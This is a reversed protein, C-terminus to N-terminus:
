EPISAGSEAWEIIAESDGARYLLEEDGYEVRAEYLTDGTRAVRIPEGQAMEVRQETLVIQPTSAKAPFTRHWYRVAATNHWSRGTILEDFAGYKQLHEVGAEVDWGASVGVASFPRDVSDAYSALRRKIERVSEIVEPRQSPGCAYSTLFVMVLEDGVPPQGSVEYPSEQAYLSASGSLVLVAVIATILRGIKM